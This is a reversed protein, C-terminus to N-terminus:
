PPVLQLDEWTKWGQHWNTSLDERAIRNLFEFGQTHLSDMIERSLIFGENCGVWPDIGIRLKEGNGVHWSLGDEVISFSEMTAKWVVLANKTKKDTRRMWENIPLPRHIKKESSDDVYKGNIIVEM